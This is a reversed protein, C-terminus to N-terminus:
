WAGDRKEVTFATVVLLWLGDEGRALDFDVRLRDGRLTPGYATHGAPHSPRGSEDKREDPQVHLCLQLADVIWRWPVHHHHAHHNRAPKVRGLDALERVQRADLIPVAERNAKVM